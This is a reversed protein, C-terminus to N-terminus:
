LNHMVEKNIVYFFTDIFRTPNARCQKVKGFMCFRKQKIKRNEM